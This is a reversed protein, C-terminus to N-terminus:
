SVKFITAEKIVNSATKLYSLPLQVLIFILTIHKSGPM